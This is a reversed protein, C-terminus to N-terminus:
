EWSLAGHGQLSFDFRGLEACRWKAVMGAAPLTLLMAAYCSRAQWRGKAVASVEQSFNHSHHALSALWGRCALPARICM